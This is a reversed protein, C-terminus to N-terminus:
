SARYGVHLVNVLGTEHEHEYFVEVGGADPVEALRIEWPGGINETLPLSPAQWPASDLGIVWVEVLRWLRYPPNEREAWARLAETNGLPV